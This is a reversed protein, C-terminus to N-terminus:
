EEGNGLCAFLPHDLHEVLIKESKGLRSGKELIFLEELAELFAM